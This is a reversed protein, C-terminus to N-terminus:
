FTFTYGINLGWYQLSTRYLEAIKHEHLANTSVNIFTANIDRGDAAEHGAHEGEPMAGHVEDEMYRVNVYEFLGAGKLFSASLTLHHRNESSMGKFLRDLAIEAGVEGGYVFGADHQTTKRELPKCDDTDTPDAIRINTRYFVAGAQPTIFPRVAQYDNGLFFKTGLLVKHMNSKYTVTTTTQSGNGFNYTQQMSRDSYNGFNSKVELYAPIRQIPRYAFLIGIGSATSMKPMIQRNPVDIPIYAGIQFRQGFSTGAILLFLPLIRKM